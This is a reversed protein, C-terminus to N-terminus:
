SHHPTNSGHNRAAGLSGIFYGDAEYLEVSYGRAQRVAKCYSGPPEDALYRNGWELAAAETPWAPWLARADERPDTMGFSGTM